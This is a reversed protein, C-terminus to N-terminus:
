KRVLLWVVQHNSYYNTGTTPTNNESASGRLQLAKARGTLNNRIYPDKTANTAFKYGAYWVNSFNKVYYTGDGTIEGNQTYKLVLSTLDSGFSKGANDSYYLLAATSLNRLNNIITNAKASRQSQASSVMLISALISIIVIVVLLEVLTFGKKKM